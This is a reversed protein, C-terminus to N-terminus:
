VRQIERVREFGAGDRGSPRYRGSLISVAGLCLLGWAAPRFFNSFDNRTTWLLSGVVLAWIALAYPSRISVRELHALLLGLLFFFLIVGPTGFNMYPEAVASFGLGGYNKFAWPDVLATIWRSPPLNDVSETSTSEWRISLNPLVGELGVLYTRGHRYNAPGILDATEILPRISAGMEAPADLINVDDFSTALSRQNLPEDRLHREVPVAILLSATVVWPFWKPFRFGKRLAIACVILGAILAPGRFGIYFLLAVWATTSLFAIWLQRRSAGVTAFYLGIFAITIGSGFFRPDTEAQLRFIESYTIRYYGVPDLKMLGAVFLVVAVVFLLVGSTFIDVDEVESEDSQPRGPDRARGRFVFFLGFQFSLIAYIILSLARSLGHPNFWVIRSIDYIGLAWPLVLGLHFLSLLGLYLIPGSTHGLGLAYRSVGVSALLLVGATLILTPESLRVQVEWVAILALCAWGILLLPRLTGTRVPM